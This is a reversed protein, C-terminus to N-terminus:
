LRLRLGDARYYIEIKCTTAKVVFSNMPSECLHNSAEFSHHPAASKRVLVSGAAFVLGGGTYSAHEHKGASSFERVCGIKKDRHGDDM